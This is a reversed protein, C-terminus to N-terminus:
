KAPASALKYIPRNAIRYNIINLQIFAVCKKIKGLDKIRNHYRAGKFQQNKQKLM